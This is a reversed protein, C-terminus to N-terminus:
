CSNTLLSIKADTNSACRRLTSSITPIPHHYNNIMEPNKPAKVRPLLPMQQHRCPVSCRIFQDRAKPPRPPLPPPAILGHRGIQPLFPRIRGKSGSRQLPYGSRPPHSIASRLHSIPPPLGPRAPCDPKPGPPSAPYSSSNPHHKM